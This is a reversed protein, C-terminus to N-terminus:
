ELADEYREMATERVADVNPDLPNYMTALATALGLAYGQQQKSPKDTEMLSQMAEDLRVWLHEIISMGAWPHLAGHLADIIAEGAARTLDWQSQVHSDERKIRLTLDSWDPVSRDDADPIAAEIEFDPQVPM